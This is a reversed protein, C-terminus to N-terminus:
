LEGQQFGTGAKQLRAAADAWGRSLSQMKQDIYATRIGQNTYSIAGGRFALKKSKRIQEIMLEIDADKREQEAEWWAKNQEITVNKAEMVLPVIQNLLMNSLPFRYVKMEGNEVYRHSLNFLIKYNGSYPYEGMLCLDSAEDYNSVYWSEPTGLQEPAVWQLLLWSPDNFAMLTDKYTNWGATRITQTQGWVVKFNPENYRNVGGVDTLRRQFDEPALLREEPGLKWM